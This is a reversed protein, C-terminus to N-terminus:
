PNKEVKKQVCGAALFSKRRRLRTRWLRPKISAQLFGTRGATSSTCSGGSEMATRGRSKSSLSSSSNKKSLMSLLRAVLAQLELGGGGSHSEISRDCGSEENVAVQGIVTKRWLLLIITIIYVFIYIYKLVKGIYLVVFYFFFHYIKGNKKKKKSEDKVCILMIYM